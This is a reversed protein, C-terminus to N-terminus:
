EHGAEASDFVNAKQDLKQFRAGECRHNEFLIFDSNSLLFPVARFPSCGDPVIAYEPGILLFLHVLVIGDVVPPNELRNNFALWHM